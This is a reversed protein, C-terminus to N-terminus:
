KRQENMIHCRVHKYYLAELCSLARLTLCLPIQFSRRLNACLMTYSCWLQAQHQSFFAINVWINVILTVGTHLGHLMIRFDTSNESEPLILSYFSYITKCDSQHQSIFRRHFEVDGIAQFLATYEGWHEQAQEKSFHQPM